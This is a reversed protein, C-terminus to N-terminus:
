CKLENGSTKIVFDEGDDDLTYNLLMNFYMPKVLM